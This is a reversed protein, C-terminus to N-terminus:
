ETRLAEVPNVRAARRAPLFAAGVAVVLLSVAVLVFMGPDARQEVPFIYRPLVYGTAAALFLGATLGWWAPTLGQRLVM